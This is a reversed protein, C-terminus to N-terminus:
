TGAELRAAADRAAAWTAAPELAALLQSREAETWSGQQLMRIASAAGLGRAVEADPKTAPSRDQTSGLAAALAREGLLALAPEPPHKKALLERTARGLAADVDGTPLSQLARLALTRGARTAVLALTAAGWSFPPGDRTCTALDTLPSRELLRAIADVVRERDVALPTLDLLPRPTTVVNVRRLEPWAQLRAPPAVGRFTRSGTWWSVDTDTRSVELLRALWTHRSLAEAVHAPPAVRDIVQHALALIRVAAGRRLAADFSPNTAHLLDHLAAMLAWEAPSALDVADVPALRRARRVRGAQVRDLLAADVGDAGAFLELAARAGIAHEPRVAGGVVLPAMVHEFLRAALTRLDAM